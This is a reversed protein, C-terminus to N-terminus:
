WPPGVDTSDGEFALMGHGALSQHRSQPLSSFTLASGLLSGLFWWRVKVTGFMEDKIHGGGFEKKVTARTAAYLMKLRVQALLSAARATLSPVPSVCRQMLSVRHECDSDWWRSRM